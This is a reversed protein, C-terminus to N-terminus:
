DHVKVKGTIWSVTITQVRNMQSIEIEGGTSSGDPYFRIAGTTSDVFEKRAATFKVRLSEPFQQGHPVGPYQYWREEVDLNFTAEAKAAIAKSRTYRLASALQQTLIKLEATTSRSLSPPVVIVMLSLLVLVMLLELLTFGNSSLWGQRNPINM